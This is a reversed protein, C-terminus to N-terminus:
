IVSVGEVPACLLCKVKLVIFAYHYDCLLVPYKSICCLVVRNLM